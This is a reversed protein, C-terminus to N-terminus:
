IYKKSNQERTANKETYVDIKIYNYICCVTQIKCDQNRSKGSLILNHVNEPSRYRRFLM